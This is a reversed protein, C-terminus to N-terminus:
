TNIRKRFKLVLSVAEKLRRDADKRQDADLQPMPLDELNEAYNCFLSLARHFIKLRRKMTMGRPGPKSGGRRGGSKDGDRRARVAKAVASVAATGNRVAAVEAATGEDTVTKADSITEKNVGALKAIQTITVPIGTVVKSWQNSGASLTAYKAMAMARQGKTLNRRHLNHDMVFLIPFAGNFKITKPKVGAELCARYRNRGDLIKGEFLIIPDLLGREKISTVLQNFEEGEILPLVEALPHFELQQSM